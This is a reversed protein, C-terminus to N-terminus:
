LHCLLVVFEGMSAWFVGIQNFQTQSAKKTQKLETEATEEALKHKEAAISLEQQEQQDKADQQIHPDHPCKSFLKILM